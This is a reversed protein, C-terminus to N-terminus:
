SICDASAESSPLLWAQRWAPVLTELMDPWPLLALSGADERLNVKSGYTKHLNYLCLTDQAANGEAVRQRETLIDIDEDM